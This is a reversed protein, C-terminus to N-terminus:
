AAEKRKKIDEVYVEVRELVDPWDFAIHDGECPDGKDGPYVARPGTVWIHRTFRDIQDVEIEVGYEAALAKAKKRARAVANRADRERQEAVAKKTAHLRLEEARVKALAADAAIRAQALSAEAAAVTKLPQLKPPPKPTVGPVRQAQAAPQGPSVMTVSTVIGRRKKVSKLPVPGGTQNCGGRLGQVTVWHNGAAILYVNTGRKSVPNAKLWGALTIKGPVVVISTRYGLRQLARRMHLDVTGRIASKGSVERLVQAAKATDVHAIISLAGPGCYRNHGAAPKIVPGINM